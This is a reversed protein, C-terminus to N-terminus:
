WASLGQQEATSGREPPGIAAVWPLQERIGDLWADEWRWAEEDEYAASGAPPRRLLRATGLVLRHLATCGQLAPAANSVPNDWLDAEQLRQLRGLAPLRSVRNHRLGLHTLGTLSALEEPLDRLSCCPLELRRLTPALAALGEPLQLCYHWCRTSACGSVHLEKLPLRCWSAPLALLGVSDVRLHALAPLAGRPLEPLQTWTGLPPHDSALSGELTIRLSTLAALCLLAAPPESVARSSERYELQRLPLAALSGWFAAEEGEAPRVHELNLSGLQRLATAAAPLPAVTVSGASAPGSLVRLTLRELRALRPLATLELGGHREVREVELALDQLGPLADAVSAVIGPLMRYGGLRLRRLPLGALQAVLLEAAPGATVPGNIHRTLALCRLRPLRLACLAAVHQAEANRLELSRLRPLPRQALLQSAFVCGYADYGLALTELGGARQEMVRAAAALFDSRSPYIVTGIPRGGALHSACDIRLCPCLTSDVLARFRCCVLRLTPRCETPVRWLAYGLVGDDLLDMLAGESAETPGPAPEAM